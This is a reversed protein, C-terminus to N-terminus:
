IIEECADCVLKEDESVQDRLIPKLGSTSQVCSPCFTKEGDTYAAIDDVPITPM